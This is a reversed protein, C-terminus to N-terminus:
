AKAPFTDVAAKWAKLAGRFTIGTHRKASWGTQASFTQIFFAGKDEWLRVMHTIGDGTVNYRSTCHVYEALDNCAPRDYGRYKHSM